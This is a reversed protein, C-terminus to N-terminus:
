KQRLAPFLTDIASVQNIQQLMGLTNMELSGTQIGPHGGHGGYLGIASLSVYRGTAAIGLLHGNHRGRLTWRIAAQNDTGFLDHVELEFQPLATHFMESFQQIGSAGSSFGPFPYQFTFDPTLLTDLLQYQRQHFVEGFLLRVQTTLGPSDSETTTV